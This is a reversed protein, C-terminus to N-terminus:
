NFIRNFLTEKWNKDGYWFCHGGLSDQNNIWESSFKSATDWDAINGIGYKIMNITFYVDEPGIYQNSLKMYNLTDTNFITTTINQKIIIEKMIKKTRLSFGGNGVQLENDNRTKFWPAGIYDWEIFDNINSKFICSDEQYILIKEGTLMNWFKLSALMKSYQSQNLDNNKTKIIKINPSIKKCMEMIFNYNLNGCVVTFSWKNGLKLIMNRITFELHPFCRYEILVSEYENNLEIKPLGFTRIFELHSYCFYRFYEKPESLVKEYLNYTQFFNIKFEMNNLDIDITSIKNDISTDSIVKFDKNIEVNELSLKNEMFDTSKFQILISQIKSFDNNKINVDIPIENVILSIVDDIIINNLYCITLCITNENIHQVNIHRKENNIAIVNELNDFNNLIIQKNSHAKTLCMTFSNIKTFEYNYIKYFKEELEARNKEAGFQNKLANLEVLSNDNLENLFKGIGCCNLKYFKYYLTMILDDHFWIDKDQGIVRNYFDKLNNLTKFKFSYTMWGFVASQYNDYLFVNDNLINMNLKHEKNWNIIEQQNLFTADCDYLQYCLEHVSTMNNIHFWDDDVVIIIDNPNIINKKLDLLGLVKTIPGYDTECENIIINNYNNKLYNIRENFQENDYIFKRRYKKCINLIIYKPKIKQNVLKDILTIFDDLILRTPISTLSVIINNTQTIEFNLNELNISSNSVISHDTPISLKYKKTAICKIEHIEIKSNNVNKFVPIIKIVDNKYCNINFNITEDFMENKNDNHYFKIYDIHESKYLIFSLISNELVDILVICKKTFPNFIYSNNNTTTNTGSYKINYNM